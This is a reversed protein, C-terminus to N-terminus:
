LKCIDGADCGNLIDFEKKKRGGSLAIAWFLSCLGLFTGNEVSSIILLLEFSEQDFMGVIMGKVIDTIPLPFAGMSNLFYEILSIASYVMINFGIMVALGGFFAWLPNKFMRGIFIGLLFFTIALIIIMDALNYRAYYDLPGMLMIAGLLYAVLYSFQPGVVGNLFDDINYFSGGVFKSFADGNMISLSLITLAIFIMSTSGFLFKVILRGNRKTEFKRVEDKDPGIYIVKEKKGIDDMNRM